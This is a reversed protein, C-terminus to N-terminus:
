RQAEWNIGGLVEVEAGEVDLSLFDIHKPAGAEEFVMQLTKTIISLSGGQSKLLASSEDIADGIESKADFFDRLGAWLTGGTDLGEVGGDAGILETERVGGAVAEKVKVCRDRGSEMLEEYAATPEICLGRWRGVRCKELGLTNSLTVGDNAGLEVFYRDGRTGFVADAWIDQGQQSVFYPCEEGVVKAVDEALKDWGGGHFEVINGSAGRQSSAMFEVVAGWIEEPFAPNVFRVRAGGREGGTVEKFVNIDSLILGCDCAMAEVVPLGFGEDVSLYALATAGSYLKALTDDDVGDKIHLYKMGDLMELEEEILVGGGVMVITPVEMNAQKASKLTLMITHGSKYGRREGVLLVYKANLDLGIEMKLGEVEKQDRRYFVKPDIGNRSSVLEVGERLKYIEELKARTSNSVVFIADSHEAIARKKQDWIGGEWGFLEPTLDHIIFGVKVDPALEKTPFTYLTSLFWHASYKKCMSALMLSDREFDSDKNYLPGKVFKWNGGREKLAKSVEEGEGGRLLLVLCHSSPVNSPLRDLVEKWVRSIGGKPTVQFIVGDILTTYACDTSGETVGDRTRTLSDGVSDIERGFNVMKVGLKEEMVEVRDVMTKEFREEYGEAGERLWPLWAGAKQPMEAHQMGRWGEVGERGYGYFLSKFEAQKEEYYAYHSFVIGLERTKEKGVCNDVARWGGNNAEEVLVPPAHSLFFSLPKFKWARLWESEAHGWGGSEGTTVIKPGVLFHCDFYACNKGNKAGDLLRYVDQIMSPSWIEDVDVQVLICDFDLSYAVENVMQLKDRYVSGDSKRHVFVSGPHLNQLEDVVQSSGDSSLNRDSKWRSDIADQSYPNRADARGEAVGEVIHWQFTTNLAKAAASFTPYHHHLYPLGNLLLTFFVIPPNSPSGAPAKWFAPSSPRGVTFNLEVRSGAIEEYAPQSFFEVVIRYSGAPLSSLSYQPACNSFRPSADSGADAVLHSCPVIGANENQLPKNAMCRLDVTVYISDDLGFNQAKKPDGNLLVRGFGGDCDTVLSKAEQMLRLYEGEGFGGDELVVRRLIRLAECPQGISLLSDYINRWEDFLHQGGFASSLLAHRNLPRLLTSDNTHDSSSIRAMGANFVKAPSSSMLERIKKQLSLSIQPLSLRDSLTAVPEIFLPDATAKFCKALLTVQSPPPNMPLPLHSMCAERSFYPERGTSSARKKVLQIILSSGPGNRGNAHSRDIKIPYPPEPYDLFLKGSADHGEVIRIEDEGWGGSLFVNTLLKFDYQTTHGDRIDAEDMPHYRTDGSEDIDYTGVYSNVDPVAVLLVGDPKLAFRCNRAANIAEQLSLHEWVHEAVMSHVTNYQISYQSFSDWSTVDLTNASTPLPQLLIRSDILSTMEDPSSGLALNLATNTIKIHALRVATILKVHDNHAIISQATQVISSILDPHPPPPPLNSLPAQLRALSMLYATAESEMDDGAKIM